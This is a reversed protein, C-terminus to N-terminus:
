HIWENLLIWPQEIMEIMEIKIEKSKKKEREMTKQGYGRLWKDRLMLM